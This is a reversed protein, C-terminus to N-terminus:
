TFELWVDWTQDCCCWYKVNRQWILFPKLNCETQQSTRILYEKKGETFHCPRLATYESRSVTLIHPIHPVHYRLQNLCQAVLRFTAPKIGSPTMPIKWQCLGEPQVIGMPNVWGRVSITLYPLTCVQVPGLARYLGYMGYSSYLYLEVREHSDASSPPSPDADRGPQEKGGPFVRYRNYLLSSPGWTRHPCSHFIEGGVPNSGWVM